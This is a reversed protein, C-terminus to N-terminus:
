LIPASAGPPLRCGSTGRLISHANSFVPLRHRLQSEGYREAVRAGVRLNFTVRQPEQDCHMGAAAGLFKAIAAGHELTCRPSACHWWSKFAGSCCALLLVSQPASWVELAADLVLMWGTTSDWALVVASPVVNVNVLVHPKQRKHGLMHQKHHKLVAAKSLALKNHLSVAIQNCAQSWSRSVLISLTSILRRLM